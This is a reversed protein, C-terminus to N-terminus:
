KKGGFAFLAVGVGAMWVWNPVGGISTETFISTWDSTTTSVSTNNSNPPTTNPAAGPAPTPNALIASSGSSQVPASVPLPTVAFPTTYNTSPAPAAAVPLVVPAGSQTMIPDNTGACDSGLEGGPIANAIGTEADCLSQYSLVVDPPFVDGVRFQGDAVQIWPVMISPPVGDLVSPKNLWEGPLGQFVSGGLLNAVQETTAMDANYMAPLYAPGVPGTYSINTYTPKIKGALFAQALAEVNTAGLGKRWTRM